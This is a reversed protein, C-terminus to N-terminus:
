RKPPILRSIVKLRSGAAMIQRRLSVLREYLPDMVPSLGDLKEKLPQLSKVCTELQDKWFGIWPSLQPDVSDNLIKDIELFKQELTKLDRRSYVSTETLHHLLLKM